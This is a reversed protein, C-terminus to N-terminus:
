SCTISALFHDEDARMADRQDADVVWNVVLEIGTSTTGAIAVHVRAPTTSTREEIHGDPTAFGGTASDAATTVEQRRGPRGCVLVASEPGRKASPMFAKRWSALGADKGVFAGLHFKPHYQQVSHWAAVESEDVATGDVVDITLGFKAIPYPKWHLTPAASDRPAPTPSPGQAPGPADARSCASVVLMVALVRTRM